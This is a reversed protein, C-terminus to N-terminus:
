AWAEAFVQRLADVPKTDLRRGDLEVVARIGATNTLAVASARRLQDADLVDKAQIGDLVVQRTVGDVAGQAPGPAHWVGDICAFVNATSAEVIHAGNALLGDDAGRAQAWRRAEVHGFMSTTKIGSWPQVPCQVPTTRVRVDRADAVFPRWRGELVAQGPGEITTLDGGHLDLRIRRNPGHLAELHGEADPVDLGLVEAGRQLRELHRELQWYGDGHTRLTEFVGHGLHLRTSPDATM